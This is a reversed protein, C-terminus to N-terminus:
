NRFRACDLRYQHFDWEYPDDDCKVAYQNDILFIADRGNVVICERYCLFKSYHEPGLLKVEGRHSMSSSLEIMQSHYESLRNGFLAHLRLWGPADRHVRYMPTVLAGIYKHNHNRLDIHGAYPHPTDFKSVHPQAYRPDGYHSM